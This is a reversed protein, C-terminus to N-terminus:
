FLVQAVMLFFYRAFLMGKKTSNSQEDASCLDKVM